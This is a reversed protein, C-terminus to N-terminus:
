GLPGRRSSTLPTPGSRSAPCTARSYPASCAYDARPAQLAHSLSGTLVGTVTHSRFVAAPSFPRELVQRLASVRSGVRAYRIPTFTKEKLRPEVVPLPRVLHPRDGSDNAGSRRRYGGTKECMRSLPANPATRPQERDARSPYDATFFRRAGRVIGKLSEDRNFVTIRARPRESRLKWGSRLPTLPAKPADEVPPREM